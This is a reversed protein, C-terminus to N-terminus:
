TNFTCMSVSLLYVLYNDTTTIPLMIKLIHMLIHFLVRTHGFHEVTGKVDNPKPKDYM